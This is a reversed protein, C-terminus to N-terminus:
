DLGAPRSRGPHLGSRSLEALHETREGSRQLLPCDILSGAGENLRDINASLEASGGLGSYADFSTPNAQSERAAFDPDAVRFLRPDNRERLLALYSEDLYYDTQISNDNFYPYRNNEQDYFPLAANDANSAMIPYQAPNEVITRFQEEINLSGGVKRSLSMLVRLKFSNILKKWQEVDGGYILDGTIEGNDVNLERNAEDLAQLVNQYIQEQPTYEPTYEDEFGSMAELYPVDGFQQSLDITVYSRLFKGLALYNSNETRVAEEEMRTVQRLQAYADFNARQWGYYQSLDAGQTYVLFRSALAADLAIDQFVAIEINTLLLDPNVETARNPDLQLEEFDQCASAVIILVLVLLIYKPYNKM